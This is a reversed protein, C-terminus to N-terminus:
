GVMSENEGAVERADREVQDKPGLLACFVQM